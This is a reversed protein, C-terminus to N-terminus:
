RALVAAVDPMVDHAGLLLPRAPSRRLATHLAARREASNIPEGDFMRDRWRAVKQQAALAHLLTLAQDDIRHKSFDVWLGAAELTFRTGRTPDAAFWDRLHHGAITRQHASLAKWASSETLASM